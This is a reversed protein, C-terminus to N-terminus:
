VAEETDLKKFDVYIFHPWNIYVLMRCINRLYIVQTSVDFGMEM